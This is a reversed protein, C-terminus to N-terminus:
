APYALVGGGLRRFPLVPDEPRRPLAHSHLVLVPAVDDGALTDLPERELGVPVVPFADLTELALELLDPDDAGEPPGARLWAVLDPDALRHEVKLSTSKFIPIKPPVKSGM